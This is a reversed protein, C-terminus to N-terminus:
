KRLFEAWQTKLTLNYSGDILDVRREGHRRIVIVGNGSWTGVETAEDDLVWGKPEMVKRFFRIASELCRSGHTSAGLDSFTAANVTMPLNEAKSIYQEIWKEHM